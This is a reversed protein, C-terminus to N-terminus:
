INCPWGVAELKAHCHKARSKKALLHNSCSGLCLSSGLIVCIHILFRLINGFILNNLYIQLCLLLITYRLIHKTRPIKPAASIQERNELKKRGIPNQFNPVTKGSGFHYPAM